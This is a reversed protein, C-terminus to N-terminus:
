NAHSAALFARHHLVPDHVRLVDVGKRALAFSVGLTEADRENAPSDTFNGLFSKRSHGCLIRCGIDQFEGVRRLLELSQLSTKGFGIGPDILVRSRDV